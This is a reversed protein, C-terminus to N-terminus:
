SLMFAPFTSILLVAFSSVGDGLRESSKKMRGRVQGGGGRLRVPYYRFLILQRLIGVVHIRLIERFFPYPQLVAFGGDQRSALQKWKGGSMDLVLSFPSGHRRRYRQIYANADHLRSHVYRELLGHM